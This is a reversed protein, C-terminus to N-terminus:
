MKNLNSNDDFKFDSIPYSYTKEEMEMAVYGMLTIAARPNPLANRMKLTIRFSKNLREIWNTTYTMRRIRYDFNLCTFVTDLDDKDITSQLKPYTKTWKRLVTKLNEIGQETTYFVFDFM